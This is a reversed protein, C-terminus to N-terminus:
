TNKGRNIILMKYTDIKIRTAFACFLPDLGFDQKSYSLTPSIMQIFKRKTVKTQILNNNFYSSKKQSIIHSSDQVTAM